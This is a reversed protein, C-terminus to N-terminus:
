FSGRASPCLSHLPRASRPPLHSRCSRSWWKCSPSLLGPCTVCCGIKKCFAGKLSGLAAHFLLGRCLLLLVLLSSLAVDAVPSKSVGKSMAASLSTSPLLGAASQTAPRAPAPSAQTRCPTPSTCSAAMTPASGWPAPTGAAGATPSKTGKSRRATSPSLAAAM